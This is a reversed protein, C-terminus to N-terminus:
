TGKVRDAVSQMEQPKKDDRREISGEQARQAGRSWCLGLWHHGHCVNREGAEICLGIADTGLSRYARDITAISCLQDGSRLRQLIDSIGGDDWVRLPIDELDDPLLFIM